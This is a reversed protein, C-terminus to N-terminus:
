RRARRACPCRGRRAPISDQNSLIGFHIQRVAFNNQAAGIANLADNGHVAVAIKVNVPPQRRVIRVQQLRRNFTQERLVVAPQVALGVAQAVVKAALEDDDARRRLAIIQGVAARRRQFAVRQEDAFVPVDGIGDDGALEDAARRQRHFQRQDNKEAREGRKEGPLQARERRRASDEQQRRNIDGDRKENEHFEAEPQRQHKRNAARHQHFM